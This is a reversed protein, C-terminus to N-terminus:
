SHFTMAVSAPVFESADASLATDPVFESADASLATDTPPPSAWEAVPEATLNEAGATADVGSQPRFESADARLASPESQAGVKNRLAAPLASMPLPPAAKAAPVAKAAVPGPSMAVDAAVQPMAAVASSVQVGVPLPEPLPGVPLPEAAPADTRPPSPPLGDGPLMPVAKTAARAVTIRLLRNARCEALMSDPDTAMNVKLIKDGAMVTKASAPGVACQRNWSAIAGSPKVDQVNLVRDGESHTVGLGLSVGEARRVMFDFVYSGDSFVEYPQQLANVPSM